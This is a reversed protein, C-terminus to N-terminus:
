VDMLALAEAISRLPDRGPTPRWEHSVYGKYPLSAIVQAIYHFNLEQTDDIENRTPVGAVHFHGISGISERIRWAIDGDMIQLHYIDCLLKVNPSDVRRIVDMGWDWHGFVMDQRALKADKGRRDNVNELCATVDHAECTDKLRKLFAVANDAAKAYDMGRRPGANFGFRRVGADACVKINATMAALQADHIEPRIIGAEFDMRGPGALTCTLGYRSLTPWAETPLIDFGHAGVHVATECMAELTAADGFGPGPTRGFNVPWLAQRIRGKRPIPVAKAGQQSLVLRPLTAAVGAAALAGM